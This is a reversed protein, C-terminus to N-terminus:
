QRDYYSQGASPKFFTRIFGDDSVVAFENTDPDYFYRDGDRTKTLVGDGPDDVLQQALYLYEEITIDGFEAQDIVHKDYHEKLRNYNRFQSGSDFVKSYDPEETVTETSEAAASTETSASALSESTKDSEFVSLSSQYAVTATAATKKGCSVFCLATLLLFVPLLFKRNLSEKM